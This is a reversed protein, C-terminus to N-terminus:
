FCQLGTGISARHGSRTTEMALMSLNSIGTASRVRRPQSGERMVSVYREEGFGRSFTALGGLGCAEAMSCKCRCIEPGQPGSAFPCLGLPRSRLFARAHQCVLCQPPLATTNFCLARTCLRGKGKRSRALFRLSQWHTKTQAIVSCGCYTRSM